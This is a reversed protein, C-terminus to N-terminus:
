KDMKLSRTRGIVGDGLKAEQLMQQEDMSSPVVGSKAFSNQKAEVFVNGKVNNLDPKAHDWAKPLLNFENYLSTKLPCPVPRQNREGM